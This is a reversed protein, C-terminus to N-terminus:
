IISICSVITLSIIIPSVAMMKAQMGAPLKSVGSLSGSSGSSSPPRTGLGGARAAQVHALPSLGGSSQTSSMQTSAPRLPGTDSVSRHAQRRRAESNDNISLHSIDPPVLSATQHSISQDNSISEANNLNEVAIGTQTSASDEETINHQTDSM